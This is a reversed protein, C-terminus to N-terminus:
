YINIIYKNWKVNKEGSLIRRKPDSIDLCVCGSKM